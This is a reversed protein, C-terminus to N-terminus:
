LKLRYVLHELKLRRAEATLREILADEVGGAEYDAEVVVDEITGWRDTPTQIPVLSATGVIRFGEGDPVKALLVRAGNGSCAFMYAMDVHHKRKTLRELLGNIEEYHKLGLQPPAERENHFFFEIKPNTM